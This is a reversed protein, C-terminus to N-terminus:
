FSCATAQEVSLHPALKGGTMVQIRGEIAAIAANVFCNGCMGQSRSRPVFNLGNVDRWDWIEPLDEITTGIKHAPTFLYKYADAENILETRQKSVSQDETADSVLIDTPELLLQEDEPNTPEKNKNIYAGNSDVIAKSPKSDDKEMFFCQWHDEAPDDIIHGGPTTDHVSGVMTSHCDAEYLTQEM